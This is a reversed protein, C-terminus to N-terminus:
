RLKLSYRSIKSMNKKMNPIKKDILGYLCILYMFSSKTFFCLRGFRGGPALQNVSLYRSDGLECNRTNKLLHYLNNKKSIIMLPGKKYNKLKSNKACVRNSRRIDSLGGTFKLTSLFEFNSWCYHILDELILPFYNIDDLIYGKSLVFPSYCSSIFCSLLARFHAKKNIKKYWNKHYKLHIFTRGGRCMNAISAQGSRSNGEGKVRPLRSLARGTGWSKASTQTGANINRKQINKKKYYSINSIKNILKINIKINEFKNIKITEINKGELSTVIFYNNKTRM